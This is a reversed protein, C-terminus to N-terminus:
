KQIMYVHVHRMNSYIGFMKKQPIQANEDICM